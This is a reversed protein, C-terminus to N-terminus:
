VECNVLRALNSTSVNKVEIIVIVVVVANDQQYISLKERVTLIHGLVTVTVRPIVTPQLNSRLSM